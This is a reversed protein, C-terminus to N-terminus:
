LFDADDDDNGFGLFQHSWTFLRKNNKMLDDLVSMFKNGVGAGYIPKGKSLNSLLGSDNLHKISNFIFDSSIPPVLLNTKADFVTEPRDTNFRCTLCPKGLLNMEEQVGGSDTFATLCNKSKYFEVVNAYEPWVDTMLFNKNMKLGDITKRFNYKDIAFKTANMEVFNVKFGNDLLGKISGIIAKFRSPTLNERRHVDMRIWDGDNLQPYIDFVSKTPKENLKLNLADVVVGGTVFINEEPYGERILHQKNLELPTFHYECGAASVFTDWQEPFPENRLLFWDCTVQKEYFDKVDFNKARLVSPAMSRLGAENQIAKENRSFMWAAPVISTLITDGLVVPVVKAKPNIKNFYDSLWNFKLMLEVSKQLLGGRINLNCAVDIVFEKIGYTLNDDYHQNANIVIYPIGMQKAAIISGYFKYFCPKTGIVFALVWKNESAGKDVATKIVSENVTLPFMDQSVSFAKFNNDSGFMSSYNDNM